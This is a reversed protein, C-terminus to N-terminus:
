MNQIATTLEIKTKKYTEEIEKFKEQYEDKSSPPMNQAKRCLESLIEAGLMGASGAIQHTNEVWYTHNTDEQQNKLVQMAKEAVDFFIDSTEILDEKTDLFSQLFSLNLLKKEDETYMTTNKAEAATIPLMKTQFGSM